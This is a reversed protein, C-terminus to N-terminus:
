WQLTGGKSQIWKKTCVAGAWVLFKVEKKEESSLQEFTSESLLVCVKHHSEANWKVQEELSLADWATPGGAEIIKEENAAWLIPMMDTIAMTKFVWKGHNERDCVKKCEQIPWFLKKQDETHDTNVGKIKVAFELLTAIAMEGMPSSKHFEFTNLIM